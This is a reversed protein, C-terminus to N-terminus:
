CSSWSERGPAEKSGANRTNVVMGDAVPTVPLRDRAQAGERGRGPVHPVNGAVSLGPHYCYHPVETGSRSRHGASDHNGRAVEVEQGDITLKPM